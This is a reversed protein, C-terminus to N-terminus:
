QAPGAVLRIRVRTVQGFEDTWALAVRTGPRRRLLLSELAGPSRVAIGGLSTIVEGATLGARAAPASPDISAVLAGKTGGYYGFGRRSPPTVVVGLSATPGVHLSPSARGALVEEVIALAHDIPIAYAQGVFLTFRFRGSSATNMGIVRGAADVLPGGSDGPEIEADTEILGDLREGRGLEDYATISKGGGTIEGAVPTPVGGGGMANGFATVPAGLSLDPTGAIPARLLHSAGVLRLVAVDSRVSYGLVKAAYTRGNALDTARISVADRVVHNNTVVLGDSSIVIGTGAAWGHALSERVDVIFGLSAPARTRPNAGLAGACLLLACACAALSRAM